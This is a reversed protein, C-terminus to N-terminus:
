NRCVEFCMQCLCVGHKKVLENADGKVVCFGDLAIFSSEISSILWTESIALLDITWIIMCTAHSKTCAHIHTCLDSHTLTQAEALESSSSYFPLM